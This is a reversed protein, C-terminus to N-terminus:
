FFISLGKAHLVSQDLVITRRAIRWGDDVRRLVDERHGAFLEEDHELHSRYVLIAARALVQDTRDTPEVKALAHCDLENQLAPNM